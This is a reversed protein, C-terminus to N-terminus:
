RNAHTRTKRFPPIKMPEAGSASAAQCTDGPESSRGGSGVARFGKLAESPDVYLRSRKPMAAMQVGATGLERPRKTLLHAGAKKREEAQRRLAANRIPEM